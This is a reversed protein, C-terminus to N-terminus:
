FTVRMGNPLTFRQHMGNLYEYDYTQYNDDYSTEVLDELVEQVCYDYENMRM